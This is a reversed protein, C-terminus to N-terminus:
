PRLCMKVLGLCTSLWYNQVRLPQEIKSTKYSHVSALKVSSFTSAARTVILCWVVYVDYWDHISSDTTMHACKINGTAPKAKQWSLALHIAGNGCWSHQMAYTLRWWTTFTIGIGVRDWDRLGDVVTGVFNRARESRTGDRDHWRSIKEAKITPVMFSAQDMGAKVM